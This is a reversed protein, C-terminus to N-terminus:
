GGSVAEAPISAVAEQLVPPLSLGIAKLGKDIRRLMFGRVWEREYGLVEYHMGTSVITSIGILTELTRHIEVALSPDDQVADRLFRLGFLVHRSEDRLIGNFAALYGPLVGHKRCFGIVVQMGSLAQLGEVWFHYSTIAGVLMRLDKPNERLRDVQHSLMALVGPQHDPADKSSTEVLGEIGEGEYGIVERYFRDLVLTHRVEDEIQSALYIRQEELPVAMAVPFLDVEVQREGTHFGGNLALFAERQAPSVKERWDIRDQTFDLDHVNWRQRGYREYLELYTPLSESGTNIYQLIDEVKVQSLDNAVHYEEEVWTPSTM